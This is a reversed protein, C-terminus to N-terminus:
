KGKRIVYETYHDRRDYKDGQYVNSVDLTVYLDKNNVLKVRVVDEFDFHEKLVVHLSKLIQDHIRDGIENAIETPLYEQLVVHIQDGLNFEPCLLFQAHNRVIEEQSMDLATVSPHQISNLLVSAYDIADQISVLHSHYMPRSGKELIPTYLM